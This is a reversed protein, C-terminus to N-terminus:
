LTSIALQLKCSDLRFIRGSFLLEGPMPTQSCVNMRIESVRRADRKRCVTCEDYPIQADMGSSKGIM